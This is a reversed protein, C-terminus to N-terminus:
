GDENNLVMREKNQVKMTVDDFVVKLLFKMRFLFLIKFFNFIGKVLVDSPYLISKDIVNSSLVPFSVHVLIHEDTLHFQEKKNIDCIDIPIIDIFM